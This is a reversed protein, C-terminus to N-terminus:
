FSAPLRNTESELTSIINQYIMEKQPYNKLSIKALDIAKEGKQNSLDKQCGAKTLIEVIESNGRQTALMLATNGQRDTKNLDISPLTILKKTLETTGSWASWMLATWGDHDSSNIDSGNEILFNLIPLRELDLDHLKKSSNYHAYVSWMLPTQGREDKKNVRMIANHGEEKLISKINPLDSQMIATVLPDASSNKKFNKFFQNCLTVFLTSITLLILADKIIIWNKKM